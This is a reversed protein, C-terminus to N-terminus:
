KDEKKKKVKKYIWFAFTGVVIVACGILVVPNNKKDNGNEGQESEASESRTIVLKAEGSQETESLARVYVINEGIELPIPYSFSYDNDVIIRLGNISVTQANEVIGEITFSPQDTVINSYDEKFIVRPKKDTGSVDFRLSVGNPYEVVAYPIADQSNLRLSSSGSGSYEAQVFGEGDFLKVTLPVDFKSFTIQANNGYQSKEIKIVPLQKVNVHCNYLEKGDPDHLKVDLSSARKTYAVTVSSNLPGEYVTSGDALVAVTPTTYSGGQWTIQVDNDLPHIEVAADPLGTDEASVTIVSLMGIICALTLILLKKKIM